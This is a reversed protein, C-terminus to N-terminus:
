TVIMHSGHSAGRLTHGSSHVSAQQLEELIKEAVDLLLQLLLRLGGNERDEKEQPEGEADVEEWLAGSLWPRGGPFWALRNM